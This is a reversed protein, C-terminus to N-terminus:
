FSVRACCYAESVSSDVCKSFRELSGSSEIQGSLVHKIIKLKQHLKYYTFMFIYLSIETQFLYMYYFRVLMGDRSFAVSHINGKHGDLVLVDKIKGRTNSSNSSKLAWVRM